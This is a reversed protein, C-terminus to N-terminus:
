CIRTRAAFNENYDHFHDLENEPYSWCYYGEGNDFDVLWLGRIECGMRQLQDAWGQVVTEMEGRVEEFEPDDEPIEEMREVLGSVREVTDSTIKKVVPVLNQAENLSFIRRDGDTAALSM